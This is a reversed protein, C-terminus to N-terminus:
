KKATESCECVTRWSCVALNAQKAESECVGDRCGEYGQRACVCCWRDEHAGAEQDQAEHGAGASEAGQGDVRHFAGRTRRSAGIQALWQTYCMRIEKVCEAKNVRGCRAVPGRQLRLDFRVWGPFAARGLTHSVIAERSLAGTQDSPM